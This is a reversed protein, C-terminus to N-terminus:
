PEFYWFGLIRFWPLPSNVAHGASRLGSWDGCRRLGDQYDLSAEDMELIDSEFNINVNDGRHMSMRHDLHDRTLREFRGEILRTRLKAEKM